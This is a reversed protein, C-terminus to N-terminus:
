ISIHKTYKLLLSTLIGVLAGALIGSLGLLIMYYAIEKTGLILIAVLIQGANHAIGGVLSVGWVSFVDIRKLLTMVLLSLAAGALSYLFAMANGFLLFSAIICRLSSVVAAEKWSCRYLLFLVVVNTLGLKMGPAMAWVPPILSELYSLVLGLSVCIGLFALKKTKM